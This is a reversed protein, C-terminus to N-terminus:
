GFGRAVPIFLCVGGVTYVGNLLIDVCKRMEIPDVFSSIDADIHACSVLVLVLVLLALPLYETSVMAESLSTMKEPDLSM